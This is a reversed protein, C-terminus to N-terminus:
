ACDDMTSNCGYVDGHVSVQLTDLHVDLASGRNTRVVDGDSTSEHIRGCEVNVPLLM